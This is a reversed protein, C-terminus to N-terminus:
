EQCHARYGMCKYALKAVMFESSRHNPVPALEVLDMAVVTRKSFVERLLDLTSYWDGGGPEPTGTAPLIAPDFYDVDFSLYIQEPLTALLESFSERRNMEHAWLVTIKEAAITKAEAASLSRLGVTATPVGLERIRRMVCAHSFPTSDYTQRLDAHADFQLVGIDPYSQIVAEILPLSLTHEGGISILFKGDQIPGEAARRIEGLATRPERADPRAPPLTAIGSRFPEAALEQDYLELQQSALLVAHPGLYTGTGWSTTREYPVPLVAFSAGSYERFAEPLDGFGRNQFSDTWSM